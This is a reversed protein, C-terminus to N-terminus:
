HQCNVCYYTARQGQVIRRIATGCQVCPEGAREYVQLAIRFYGPRGDSGVFDRLTTGGHAISEALVDRVAAVLSRLREPSIRGAARRPHIGARFLAENAYINGVGVVVHSNMLLQKIAVRRGECAARLHDASFGAELPEPGLAAILRHSGASNTLLVCGFRRPDNLRLTGTAFRWDVHDHPAPPIEEPLFRLSGSMGLHVILECDDLQLLLYKARRAVSHVTQGAIRQELGDPIRWRLRRERVVVREIAQNSILPAIGRRTTEVEPLEPM